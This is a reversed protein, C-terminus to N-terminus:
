NHHVAGHSPRESGAGEAHSIEEDRGNGPEPVPHELLRDATAPGVDRPRLDRTARSWPLKARADEGDEDVIGGPELLHRQARGLDEGAESGTVADATVDTRQASPVRGVGRCVTVCSRGGGASGRLASSSRATSVMMAGTVSGTSAAETRRRTVLSRIARRRRAATGGARLSCVHTAGRPEDDEHVGPSAAAPRRSARPPQAVEAGAVAGSGPRASTGVGPRPPSAGTRGAAPRGAGVPMKGLGLHLRSLPPELVRDGLQAQGDLIVRVRRCQPDLEGLPEGRVSSTVPAISAAWFPM